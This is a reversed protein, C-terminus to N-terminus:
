CGKGAVPPVTPQQAAPPPFYREVIAAGAQFGAIALGILGAIDDVDLTIGTARQIRPILLAAVLSVIVTNKRESV